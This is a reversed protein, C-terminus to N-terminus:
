AKKMIRNARETDASLSNSEGNFVGPLAEPGQERWFDVLVAVPAGAKAIFRDRYRLAYELASPELAALKPFPSRGGDDNAELNIGRRHLVNRFTIDRGYFIKFIPKHEFIYGCASVRVSYTDNSGDHQALQAVTMRPLIGPAPQAARKELTERSPSYVPLARLKDIWTKDLAVEVAGRILVDRYRESCPGEPFDLPLPTKPVYVETLITDGEYTKVEIQEVAYASEQADLNRADAHSLLTSVGHVV